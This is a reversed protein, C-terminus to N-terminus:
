RRGTKSHPGDEPKQLEVTLHADYAYFKYDLVDRIRHSNISILRDGKDAKGYLPSTCDVTRIINKQIGM